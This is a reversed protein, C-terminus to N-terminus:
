ADRSNGSFANPPVVDLLRLMVLIPAITALRRIEGKSKDELEGKAADAADSIGRLALFRRREILGGMETAIGAGSSEMDIALYDRRRKLLWQKFATAAAVTPGCAFPGVLLEYRLSERIDAPIASAEALANLQVRTARMEEPVLLELQEVRNRLLADSRLPDGALQWDFSEADKGPVAKSNALFSDVITGVVVDGLRADKSLAGSIGVSVVLSPRLDQILMATTAATQEQGKGVLAFALDFEVGRASRHKADYTVLGTRDSENPSLKGVAASVAERIFKLEEVLAVVILARVTSSGWQGVQGTQDLWRLAADAGARMAHLPSASDAVASRVSDAAAYVGSGVGQETPRVLAGALPRLVGDRLCAIRPEDRLPIVDAVSLERFAHELGMMKVGRRYARLDVLQTPHTHRTWFDMAGIGPINVAISTQYEDLHSAIWHWALGLEIARQPAGGTRFPFIRLEEVVNWLFAHEELRAPVQALEGTLRSDDPARGLLIAAQRLQTVLPDGRSPASGTVLSGIDAMWRTKLDVTTNLTRAELYPQFMVLREYAARDRWLRAMATRDFHLQKSRHVVDIDVSSGVFFCLDAEALLMLDPAVQEILPFQVLDVTPMYIPDESLFAVWRLAARVVGASTAPDRRRDFDALRLLQDHLFQVFM